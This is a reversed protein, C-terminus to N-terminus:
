KRIMISGNHTNLYIKGQGTGVIAKINNDSIKGVMTIELETDISGNNTSLEIVSSVAHPLKITISGNHTTVNANCIPDAESSFIINAKGNHTEAQLDGILNRCLIKGNHTELDIPGSTTDTNISGNHTQARIQGTIGTINVAGNHTTLDLSARVPLLINLDVSVYQKDIFPPKDIKVSLKAGSRILTVDIQEALKQANEISVARTTITATVICVNEAIGTVTISGNHTTASFRSSNAAVESLEVTREYRAVPECGTVCLSLACLLVILIIRLKM